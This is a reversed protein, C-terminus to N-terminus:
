VKMLQLKGQSVNEFLKDIILKTEARLQMKRQISRLMQIGQIGKRNKGQINKSHDYTGQHINQYVLDPFCLHRCPLHRRTGHHRWPCLYDGCDYPTAMTFSRAM